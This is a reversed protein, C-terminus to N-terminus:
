KYYKIVDITVMDLGNSVVSALTINILRTDDELITLEIDSLTFNQGDIEAVVHSENIVSILKVTASTSNIDGIHVDTQDGETLTINSIHSVSSCVNDNGQCGNVCDEKMEEKAGCSDYWYIDGDDCRAEKHSTCNVPIICVGNECGINCSEKKDGINGCSDYWYVDDNHCKAEYQDTCNTTVNSLACAGNHCVYEEVCEVFEHRVIEYDGCFYEKLLGAEEGATGCYDTFTSWVGPKEFGSVTGKTKIDDGGDTDTCEKTPYCAGEKCTYDDPCATSNWKIAGSDACYKETLTGDENCHDVLRQNGSECVGRRFINYGDDTEFCGEGAPTPKCEGEICGWRCYERKRVRKGCSDYWYAHGEYCRSKAEPKCEDQAPMCCIGSDPCWYRSKQYGPRCVTDETKCLLEPNTKCVCKIEVGGASCLKGAGEVNSETCTIPTERKIMECYRIKEGDPCEYYRECSGGTGSGSSSIPVASVDSAGTTSAHPAGTILGTLTDATTTAAITEAIDGSIVAEEVIGVYSCYGGKNKCLDHGICRGADCGNGCAEKRVGRNGCSDYWYANGEYCRVKYQPKCEDDDPGPQGGTKIACEIVQNEWDIWATVKLNTATDEITIRYYEKASVGVKQCEEEITGLITSAEESTYHTIGIDAGPHEDLFEQVMPNLKAFAAPDLSTCGSIAIVLMVSLILLPQIPKM